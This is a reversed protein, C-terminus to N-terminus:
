DVSVRVVSVFSESSDTMYIYVINLENIILM